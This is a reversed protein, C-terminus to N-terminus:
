VQDTSTMDNAKKEEGAAAEECDQDKVETEEPNIPLSLVAHIEHPAKILTTASKNLIATPLKQDDEVDEKPKKYIFYLIVQVVGFIFGVVNPGQM